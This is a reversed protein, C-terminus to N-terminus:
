FYSLIGSVVKFNFNLFIRLANWSYQSYIITDSTRVLSHTSDAPTSSTLPSTFTSTVSSFCCTAEKGLEPGSTSAGDGLFSRTWNCCHTTKLISSGQPACLGHFPNSFDSIYRIFISYLVTLALSTCSKLSINEVMISSMNLGSHISCINWTSDNVCKLVSFLM